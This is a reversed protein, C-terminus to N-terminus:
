LRHPPVLVEGGFAPHDLGVSPEPVRKAEPRGVPPSSPQSTDDKSDGQPRKRGSHAGWGGLGGPDTQRFSLGQSITPIGEERWHRWAGERTSLLGERTTIDPHHCRRCTWGKRGGRGRGGPGRRTVAEQRPVEAKPDISQQPAQGLGLSM